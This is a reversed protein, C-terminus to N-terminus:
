HERLRAVGWGIAACTLGAVIGGFFMPALFDTMSAGTSVQAYKAIAVNLAFGGAFGWIAWPIESPAREESLESLMGKLLGDAQTPHVPPNLRRAEAETELAALLEDLLEDPVEDVMQNYARYDSSLPIREAPAAQPAYRSATACARCTTTGRQWEEFPLGRGCSQCRARVAVSDPM